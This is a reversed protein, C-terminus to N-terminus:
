GLKEKVKSELYMSIFSKLCNQFNRDNSSFSLTFNNRGWPVVAISVQAQGPRYRAGHFKKLGEALENVDIKGDGNKDLDKFLRELREPDSKYHHEDHDDAM